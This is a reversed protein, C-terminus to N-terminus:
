FDFRYYFIPLRGLQLQEITPDDRGAVFGHNLINKTNFLNSIDVAIEHTFKSTNLKYAIKLDTRFYDRFQYANYNKDLYIIEQELNSKEIDIDGYRQGGTWAVKLGINITQKKGLSFEKGGLFNTAFRGNFSSNRLIGDSGRYKSDFLSGSMMFYYGRNFSKEISIDLGYNRGTGDSVLKDPFFRSFGSGSNLLSYATLGEAAIPLDYLYQYYTEAKFRINKGIFREYGLVVHMSKLLGLDKNYPTLEDSYSENKDFYYLYPALTQSHLGFGFNIKQKRDVQYSLGFRPEIPSISNKSMTFINSTFGGTLVLKDSAKYKFQLYPQILMPNGTSNWRKRWKSVSDLKTNDSNLTAIRASDLYESDYFDFNLGGKFSLKKNFKKNISLYASYKNDRFHYGLINVLTDLIFQGSEGDRVIKDHEAHVKQHSASFVAKIFTNKNIPKTYSMGVLAMRSGFYQDRDNDGYLETIATDKQTSIIIPVESNGAIGFVAFNGGFKLPFNLRFAADQYKPSSTTGINIGLSNFISVTSYKYMALFSSGKKKSIPGEAMLETGLLGFQASGEYKENNGSRMKLDFVGAIGNSYEAPFAGTFFDSNALFKSNLITVPGGGTGPIAFHNPNPINIGELRWLVGLPTNGRVVIDNRSDDSSLVGPYSKAMRAPDGRSGAYKETEYVSFERASIVAMENLAEGSRKGVIVVEDMQTIREEMKVMLVVEKGTTVIIDDLIVDKYGIYSFKISHRGIPVENLRYKGKVDSVSGILPDSKMLIVNVGILPFQSENDVVVGRITQTLQAYSKNVFGFCLLITAILFIAKKMIRM